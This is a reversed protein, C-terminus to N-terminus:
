PVRPALKNRMSPWIFDHRQIESRISVVKKEAQKNEVDIAPKKKMARPTEAVCATRPAETKTSPQRSVQSAIIIHMLDFTVHLLRGDGWIRNKKIADHPRLQEVLVGGLLAKFPLM